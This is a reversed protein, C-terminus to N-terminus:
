SPAGHSPRWWSCLPGRPGASDLPSEWCAGSCCADFVAGNVLWILLRGVIFPRDALKWGTAVQLIRYPVALMTAYLPPKSSYYHPQGDRGRHYVKDITNWGKQLIVDDIQYTGLDVLLAGYVLSQPRQCESLANTSRTGHCPQLSVHALRTRQWDAALYRCANINPEYGAHPNYSRQRLQEQWRAVM